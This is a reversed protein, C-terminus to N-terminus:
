AAVISTDVNLFHHTSLSSNSRQVETKRDETKFESEDVETHGRGYALSRLGLDSGPGLDLSGFDLTWLGVGTSM